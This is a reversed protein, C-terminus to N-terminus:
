AAECDKLGACVRCLLDFSEYRCAATFIANSIRLIKAEAGALEATPLLYYAVIKANSSDMRVILTLDSRANRNAYVRWRVRGAGQVGARASGLSILCADDITLLGTARDFAARGDLEIITVVIKDAIGYLMSNYSAATEARRQRPEPQYGALRYAAVLSGFRRRYSEASPINEAAAIIAGTLHGKERGLAALRDLAEQDSRHQRRVRLFEQAKAFIEPKIIAPCANDYRIWNDNPNKVRKQKLKYSTRNFIVSGTYKENELIKGIVEGSWRRGRTTWIQDANLEAAIEGLYKGETVFSSFIRRVTQV